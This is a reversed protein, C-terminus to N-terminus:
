PISEEFWHRDSLAAEDWHIPEDGDPVRGGLWAEIDKRDAASWNFESNPDPDPWRGCGQFLCGFAESLSYAEHYTCRKAFDCGPRLAVALTPYYRMLEQRLKWAVTVTDYQECFKLRNSCLNALSAYNINLCFRHAMGMPLLARADQWSQRGGGAAILKFYARKTALVGEEFDERATPSDYVRPPVIVPINPHANDRVGMSSITAGVRVRAIQDFASRSCGNIEFLFQPYELALPLAKRQLIALVVQKRIYPSARNWKDHGTDGVGGWTQVAMVFMGAYFNPLPHPGIMRVKVDEGGRVFHTCNNVDTRPKTGMLERVRNLEQRDM